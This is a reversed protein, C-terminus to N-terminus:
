AAPLYGFKMKQTHVWETAAKLAAEKGLKNINFQKAYRRTRKSTGTHTTTVVDSLDSVSARFYHYNGNRREAVGSVGTNSKCVTINTSNEHQTVIRLNDKTNDLRNGNKHDVITCSNSAHELIVHAINPGKKIYAYGTSAIYITKETFLDICNSDIFVEEFYTNDHTKTIV